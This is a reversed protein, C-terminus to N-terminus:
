FDPSHHFDVVFRPNLDRTADWTVRIGRLFIDLNEVSGGVWRNWFAGFCGPFFFSKLGGLCISIWDRIRLFIYFFEIFDMPEYTEGIYKMPEGRSMTAGRQADATTGQFCLGEQRLHGEKASSWKVHSLRESLIPKLFHTSIQFGTDPKQSVYSKTAHCVLHCVPLYNAVETETEMSFFCPFNWCHVSFNSSRLPRGDERGAEFRHLVECGVGKGGQDGGVGWLVSARGCAGGTSGEFATEGFFFPHFRVMTRSEGLPNGFFFRFLDWCSRTVATSSAKTQMKKAKFQTKEQEEQCQFWQFWQFVAPFGRSIVPTSSLMKSPIGLTTKSASTPSGLNWLNRKLIYKKCVVQIQEDNRPVFFDHKVSWHPDRLFVWLFFCLQLSMSFSVSWHPYEFWSRKEHTEKFNKSCVSVHFFSCRTGCAM